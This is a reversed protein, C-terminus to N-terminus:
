LGGAYTQAQHSIAAGQDAANEGYFGVCPAARCHHAGHRTDTMLGFWDVLFCELGAARQARIKTTSSWGRIRSPNRARIAVWGSMSTHASAAVTSSPMSKIRLLSGSSIM